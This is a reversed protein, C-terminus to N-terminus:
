KKKGYKLKNKFKKPNIGYAKLRNKSLSAMEDQSSGKNHKPNLKKYKNARQIKKSNKHSKVSNANNTQENDNTSKKKKKPIIETEDVNISNGKRKASKLTVSETIENTNNKNKNDNANVTNNKNSQKRHYTEASGDVNETSGNIGENNGQLKKEQKKGSVENFANSHEAMEKSSAPAKKTVNNKINRKKVVGNAIPEKQSEGVVETSNNNVSVLGKSNKNKLDDKVYQQQQQQHVNNSQKISDITNKKKTNRNRKKKVPEQSQQGQLVITGEQDESEEVPSYISKLIKKKLSENRSKQRYLRVENLEVHQPKHQLTKKLPCWKNLEKDNAMLIEEMTLGYDNPVVNRYKFRCPLDGIMDEYDLAYYQDFYEQYSPHHSPDFKPKEKAILEAFKSRKRRKKKRTSDVLETELKKNPDYDADMNFQPDECHPGEYYPEDEPAIEEADPDYFDWTTEIGLETDINPFEPKVDGEPGGYYDDNFLEQMKRDHEAPDFDGELDINEFRIDNNGTIEKLKEIKEEIEKRKLAKLQKLEERKRLKEEEKRQKLEVRKQARRTDKKRLSNELMRPYRKIFEQDPEEFRFNYKHEFEEQKEIIKEDESLNEDSDHAVQEYDLNIDGSKKELFQKNLVYDRLFKENPDLNPDTWFDRLPKLEQQEDTAIETKQGKLWEIYTEEEKQREEETKKKPILLGTEEEDQDDELLKKFNEKLKHQEEAYTPTRSESIKKDIVETEEESDSLKGGRKTIIEREYDRLFTAKEKSKKKKEGNGENIEISTNTDKFFEINGDYIKPDKNKLCALTKYFDKEFQETLENGEEDEDSSSSSDEESNQLEAANEGYKTKLKNLEEKQRWTNYNNAYGDNIKLEEDSDSNDAVFLKPM